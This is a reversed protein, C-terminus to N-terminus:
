RGPLAARLRRFRARLSPRGAESRLRALSGVTQPEFGDLLTALAIFVQAATLADGDAHHPRHVPLGLSRALGSLGPSSVAFDTRPAGAGPTWDRRHRRLETALDATDVIPNRLTSGHARFAAEIFREEISAVHAVMVTGTLAELLDDLAESLPPAGVLDSERLGHIRITEGDPMRRPRVFQYRTDALTVRGEIVPVAAFSIIEHVAPDLGTLELDVVSYTAERWPTAPPPLPARQYALAIESAAEHV